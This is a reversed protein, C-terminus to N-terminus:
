LFLVEDWYCPLDKGSRLWSSFGVDPKTGEHCSTAPLCHRSFSCSFSIIPTILTPFLGPHGFLSATNLQSALPLYGSSNRLQAPYCHCSSHLLISCTEQPHCNNNFKWNWSKSSKTIVSNVNLYFILFIALSTNWFTIWIFVHTHGQYKLTM